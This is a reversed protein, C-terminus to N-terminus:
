SLRLVAARLKPGLLAAIIIKILDGALYPIVGVSFAATFTLNMQRALWLTGLLYCVAAGAAMGVISFLLKGPFFEIFFGAILAMFIFGILYGGTPGALKGLGGSFSSFIPLGAAGLLLYIIYSITGFKMGLVFVALYIALNTFTIPVPSMPLPISLPGLICIVATMVGTLTLHKVSISSTNSSPTKM